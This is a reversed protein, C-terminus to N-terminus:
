FFISVIIIRHKTWRLIIIMQIINNLNTKIVISGNSQQTSDQTLFVASLAVFYIRAEIKRHM